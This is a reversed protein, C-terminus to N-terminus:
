VCITTFAEGILLDVDDFFEESLHDIGQGDQLLVEGPGAQELGGAMLARFNILLDTRYGLAGMQAIVYDAGAPCLGVVEPDTLIRDFTWLAQSNAGAAANGQESRSANYCEFAFASTATFVVITAVMAAVLWFRKIM